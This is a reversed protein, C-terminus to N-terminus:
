CVSSEGIIKDFYHALNYHSHEQLSGLVRAERYFSAVQEHTYNSAEDVYRALLSKARGCTERELATPLIPM